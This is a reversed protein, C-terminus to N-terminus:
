VDVGHKVEWAALNLAAAVVDARSESGSCDCVLQGRADYVRGDNNGTLTGPTFPAVLGATSYWQTFVARALQGYTM